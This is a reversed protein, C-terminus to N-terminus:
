LGACERLLLRDLFLNRHECSTESNYTCAYCARDHELSSSTVDACLPDNSCNDSEQAIRDLYRQLNPVLSTLGGLHRGEGETVYLLIGGTTQWESRPRLDRQIGVIFLWHGTSNNLQHHSLTHWWVFMPHSEVVHKGEVTVTLPETRLGRYLYRNDPPDNILSSFKNKWKNWREGGNCLNSDDEFTILIGEGHGQCCCVM